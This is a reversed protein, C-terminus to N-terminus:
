TTRFDSYRAHLREAAFMEFMCQWIDDEIEIYRVHMQAISHRATDFATRFTSNTLLVDRGEGRRYNAVIGTEERALIVAFAAKKVDNRSHDRIRERLRRSRGVYLHRDGESLIYVGARPMGAPLNAAIQAPTTTLRQLLGPMAAVADDFRFM